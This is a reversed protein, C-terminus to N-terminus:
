QLCRFNLFPHPTIPIPQAIRIRLNGDRAIRARGIAVYLLVRLRFGGGLVEPLAGVGAGLEWGRGRLLLIWVMDVVVSLWRGASLVRGTGMVLKGAEEVFQSAIRLRARIAAM